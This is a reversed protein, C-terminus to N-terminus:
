SASSEGTAAKEKGAKVKEAHDPDGAIVFDIISVLYAQQAEAPVPQRQRDFAKDLAGARDPDSLLCGLAEVAGKEKRTTSYAILQESTAAKDFEFWEGGVKMLRRGSFGRKALYEDLDFVEDGAAPEVTQSKAIPRPTKPAGQTM